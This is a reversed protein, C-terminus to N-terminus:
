ESTRKIRLRSAEERLEAYSHRRTAKEHNTPYNYEHMDWHSEEYDDLRLLSELDEDNFLVCNRKLLHMLPEEAWYPTQWRDQSMFGGRGAIGALLYDLGERVGFNALGAAVICKFGYRASTGMEQLDSSMTEKLLPLASPSNLEILHAWCWDQKHSRCYNLMLPTLISPEILHLYADVYKANDVDRASILASIQDTTVGQDYWYRGTAIRVAFAKSESDGHKALFDIMAICTRSLDGGKLRRRACETAQRSQDSSLETRTNKWEVTLIELAEAATDENSSTFALECLGSPVAPHGTKHLTRVANKPCIQLANSRISQFLRSFSLPGQRALIDLTIREIDIKTNLVKYDSSEYKTELINCLIETFRPSLPDNPSLSLALQELMKKSPPHGPWEKMLGETFAILDHTALSEIDRWKAEAFALAAAQRVNPHQNHLLPLLQPFVPKGIAIFIDVVHRGIRGQENRSLLDVLHGFEYDGCAAMDILAKCVTQSKTDTGNELARM